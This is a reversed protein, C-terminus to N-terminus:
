SAVSEYELAWIPLNQTHMHMYQGLPGLAFALFKKGVCVFVFHRYPARSLRATATTCSQHLQLSTPQQPIALGWRPAHLTPPALFTRGLLRVGGM